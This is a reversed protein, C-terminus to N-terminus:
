YDVAYDHAFPQGGWAKRQTWDTFPDSWFAHDAPLGLPLFGVSTIYMSGSNSYVDAIGPQHGAFGLTLWNGDAFVGPMEFMRKMVATLACRVQAPAIGEPLANRLALLGLPQFAGVRYTVSRGVPPYAGEPSIMRELSESYRQIRKLALEQAAKGAKGERVLVDLIEVLMPQIVYGNYYDFHFHPGDAYWGDGAYWEDIKHLAIEIRLPDYDAGISLLFTEVMAAFLLWNNYAPQTHRLKKFSAVYRGKTVLDLPEWFVQPARLFTNAIYAADVLPQGPTDWDLYDPNTPDVAAALCQLTQNRLRTRTKGEPTDDDPLALWPALGAILRGFAEMYAFSRERDKPWTPSYEVPMNKRLTGRSMNDLIPAAIKELLASWYARDAVPTAASTFAAIAAPTAPAGSTAVAASARGSEALARKGPIVGAAGALSAWKIFNRRRM